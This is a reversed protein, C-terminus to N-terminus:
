LELYAPLNVTFTTGEGLQSEVEISGGHGEIINHSIWLGLGLGKGGRGSYFPKFLRGREEESIGRGTDTVQLRVVDDCLATRVILEGGEPMAEQANLALNVLVQELQGASGLVLLEQGALERRVEVNGLSLQHGMLALVREVVGNIDTPEMEEGAPRYFARLRRVIEAIREFGLKVMELNEHLPDDEGVQRSIVSLYNSIGQLPNNIEHAVSVALRGTAALKESQILRAQADRLEKTRQEVMEELRESYEKLTEEARKRETIEEQAQEYLRSNEVAIAAHNAFLTLLELDAETFHHSEADHLVHIVGTVQGQWIMPASLVASFPQEEEYVAARRNWTRYDNIILREGTQAVVGAAGEGYKLVTGTYDRPTNYSVVCRVEGRDPHCLYLGGGPANLLLAAREVIAQLLAPLGHPATIDLVTAQLAALEEARRRLAAGARKRMLAEVFAVSLAEVAEQDALDYGSEKNALGIMGITRGAQKLPVGLFCTLPPHGEPTGVRDPHATPDNVILSQEDKLVKGWLGRIEMDKLLLVANTKPMRCAEWGPDSLAIADVRGAPNVEGIFGFKSGTLKEAVALCTRAVQEDTDCVLTEQFVENIAALVASQRLVREGARKRETIDRFVVLRGTLRGSRDYLPSIHLEFCQQAEGEGLVFEERVETVDRYREVLDPWASFVQAAPQGIAESAPRSTIQQAALNLDVIRNQTDLVIVGDSMGEIVTDRAVPVIDLLRFRFLGWAVALGTITFAFPTLDLYPFPSLGSIYLVNGVWPALAAILVTGAQGRYLRPSRILAQLLLFTGLLLLLYSYAAYVWFGASYTFDLVPFSGSTDLRVDRAILGHVENTLHLLLTVLPEIALLVLNRTTLWKERGTHQLAFALWLVPVFTVGLFEIKTWFGKTLLDTSGLELVHGLSWVVVAVM